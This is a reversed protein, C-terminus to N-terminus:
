VFGRPSHIETLAARGGPWLSHRCNASLPGEGLRGAVRDKSEYLVDGFNMSLKEPIDFYKEPENYRSVPDSNSFQKKSFDGHHGLGDKLYKIWRISRM